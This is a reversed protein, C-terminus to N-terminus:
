LFYYYMRDHPFHYIDNRLYTYHAERTPAVADRSKELSYFATM